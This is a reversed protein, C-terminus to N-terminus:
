ESAELRVRVEREEEGTRVRLVVTDGVQRARIAVILEESETVPRGDIALIVDGRRIGARDAPGDERVAVGDRPDQAFVQVGEGSYAPDLTVGIVPYTARGTEILQEATRRAQNSPIAFGLGISGMDTVRGPLQAIASNIGVVEGRANVLPGGSNGPNIAADTQIANIFAQETESAGAVVPRNLASVIGTTVTGVLGLPAGIAVVPDGVVVADSDGLALPTLGTADVKVVALDYDATAGVVTGPLESGDSLQVVLTGGEAGQVVHNNTLVYGDQRLVFGSGTAGGDATTVALSVVSPLVGAAIGAISEPARDPQAAPAPVVPLGADVLRADGTQHRAGLLGGLYGAALSLLVLPVVWAVSPTRRRRRPAAAPAPAFAPLGQAAGGSVGHSRAAGAGLQPPLASSPAPAWPGGPAGSPALPPPLSSGPPTAPSPAATTGGSARRYSSPAAFPAVPPPAPVQPAPVPPEPHETAREPQAVGGAPVQGEDSM